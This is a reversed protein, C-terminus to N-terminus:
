YEREERCETRYVPPLFLGTDFFTKLESTVSFSLGTVVNRIRFADNYRYRINEQILDLSRYVRVKTKRTLSLLTLYDSYGAGANQLILEAKQKIKSKNISFVEEMTISGQGIVAIRKGELMACVEVLSEEVAWLLLVVYKIVSALPPLGTFGVVGAALTNLRAMRDPQKLIMVMCFLTRIAILHLVAIMLNTRDKEAGFIQYEREYKLKTYPSEEGFRHFYRISYLELATKDLFSNGAAELVSQMGGGQFLAIIEDVCNMLEEAFSEKELSASPLEKGSLKAESQEEKEVGVLPLVGSTLLNGLARIVNEWTEKAVVIEGYSFSLGAITYSKMGEVIATMEAAVEGLRNKSFGRFSFSSLVNQNCALTQRLADTSFGNEELGAYFKMCKLEDCFVQYLEGSLKEEKGKLFAEYEKVVAKATQQKKELRTVIGLSEGLLSCVPLVAGRISNYEGEAQQLLAKKQKEYAELLKQEQWLAEQMSQAMSQLLSLASTDPKKEGSLRVEETAIQNKLSELSRQYEAIRKESEEMQKDLKAIQELTELVHGAAIDVRFFRGSVAHFVESNDYSAQIQASDLPAIQKIFAGQAQLKGHRDFDIGNANMCIGDIQEMLGIIEKTVTATAELAEEQERYIAGTEGAETFLEESFLSKLSLSLGDLVTQERIQSLFEKEEGSLMTEFSLVQAETNQFRLLAGNRSEMGYIVDQKLPEQLKEKSFSSKGDGANVGFLRYQEFLPYYYSALFSEGALETIMSTYASAGRIRAAELTTLLFSFLLVLVLSLFVTISGRRM